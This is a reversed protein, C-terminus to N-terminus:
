LYRCEERLMGLLILDRDGLAARVRGEEKFGMKKDMALVRENREDVLGTVRSLGLQRFPYAFAARVLQRSVWGKDGAFHMQCDHKTFADYAVVGWVSGDPRLRGIFQAHPGFTTQLREEAFHRLDPHSIIDM